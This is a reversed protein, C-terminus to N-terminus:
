HYEELIPSLAAPKWGTKILVKEIQEINYGRDLMAQIYDHLPDHPHVTTSQVPRKKMASDTYGLRMEDYAGKVLDSPWGHSELSQQIELPTHKATLEKQIFAHLQTRSTVDQKANNRKHKWLLLVIILIILLMAIGIIIGIFPLRQDERQGPLITENVSDIILTPTPPEIITDVVAANEKRADDAEAVKTIAGIAFISLGPLSTTFYTYQGSVIIREPTYGMWRGQELRYLRVDSVDIDRARLTTTQIKFTLAFATGLEDVNGSIVNERALLIAGNPLVPLVTTANLPSVGITLKASPRLIKFTINVISSNGPKVTFRPTDGAKLNFWTQTAEASPGPSIGGGGGGGGGAGGGSSGGSSGCTNTTCSTSCTKPCAGNGVGNDCSEGTEAIGNGCVPSAASNNMEYVLTNRSGTIRYAGNIVICSYTSNAGPCSLVVSEAGACTSGVASLAADERDIICLTTNAKIPMTIIKTDIPALDVGSILLNARHTNNTANIVITNLNLQTTAFNHPFAITTANNITITVNLTTSFSQSLNTSNGVSINISGANLMSGITTNGVVCGEDVTGDCNDDKGSCIETTGPHIVVSTDNCDLSNAVYGSPQLIATMSQLPTGYTDSDADRYWVGSIICATGDWQKGANCACAGAACLRGGSCIAGNDIQADCNDDVGNCIETAGPKIGANTDNCDSNVLSYGAPLICAQTITTANGYGDTDIDRYYTTKVGDDIQGDCDDDINNCTEPNPVCSSNMTRVAIRAMERRSITSTPCFNGGGCGDMIGNESIAQIYTYLPHLSNVDAFRQTTDTMSLGLAVSLFLAMQGRNVSADPCYRLPNTACGATLGHAYMAEIYPYAWHNAPVDSFTPTAPLDISLRTTNIIIFAAEARSLSQTANFHSTTAGLMIGRVSAVQVDPWYEDTMAVDDYLYPSIFSGAAVLALQVDFPDVERPAIGKQVALAAIAGAAQGTAMTSPQLRTAGNAYRSYGLNKEAPLFGDVTEPIFSAFPIGFPGWKTNQTDATTENLDAELDENSNCNHLDIAYDGIAVSDTFTTVPAPIVGTAMARRVESGTLTHLAVIRRSERVYPIPTMLREIPKFVAPIIRTPCLHEENYMTNFGEDNAVSWSSEGLNHQVYYLFQITKLKAECTLRERESANEIFSINLKPQIVDPPPNYDAYSPYDNAFNVSTRTIRDYDTCTYNGPSPSDPICRYWNHAGWDLPYPIPWVIASTGDIAVTRSFETAAAAYGPPEITLQLDAPVGASYNRIVTAYTIDQICSSYDISTSLSNGIRYRAGTLPIIDGYETADILVVSTFTSGGETAVGVVTDGDKLVAVVRENEYLAVNADALMERLLQSAVHPEFRAGVSKGLAAYHAIMANKFEAYIGNPSTSSVHGEDMTPVPLIQGGVMDTEELLAVNAGMRSAQIAAAVGGSGAGVVVVDYGVTVPVYPENCAAGEDVQGDCDDDIANCSETAGPNIDADTDDCDNGNFCGGVEDIGNYGDSDQDCVLCSEGECPPLYANLEDGSLNILAVSLHNYGMTRVGGLYIAEPIGSPSIYLFPTVQGVVDPVKRSIPYLVRIPDWTMGDTSTTIYTGESFGEALMIYMGNWKKVDTAGVGEFVPQPLVTWHIGDISTAYCVASYVVSSRNDLCNYWMRFMGSDNLATPRAIAFNIGIGPSPNIVTGVATWAIGDDSIAASIHDDEKQGPFLNVASYYMFYTGNYKIITPDNMHYNETNPLLEKSVVIGQKTWILGDTSEAYHIRDAGDLGQGGYWMKYIGEEYLVEPAYVNGLGVIGLESTTTGTFLEIPEHSQYYPDQSLHWYLDVYGNTPVTVTVSSGSVPTTGHCNISNYCLTYGVDWGLPVDISVIHEGSPVSNFTYPNHTRMITSDLMVTFELGDASVVIGQITGVGYDTAFGRSNEASAAEQNFISPM